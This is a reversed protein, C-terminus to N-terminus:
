TVAARDCAGPWLHRRLDAGVACPRAAHRRLPRRGSHARAAPLLPDDHPLGRRGRARVDLGRDVRLGPRRTATARVRSRWLRLRAGQGLHHRRLRRRARSRRRVVAGVHERQQPHPARDRELRRVARPRGLAHRRSDAAVARQPPLADRQLLRGRALDPAAPERRRAAAPLAVAHAHRRRVRGRRWRRCRRHRRQDRVDLRRPDDARM